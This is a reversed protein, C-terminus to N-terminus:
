FFDIAKINVICQRSVRYFNDPDLYRESLEDLSYDILNKKAQDDVMYVLREQSYFYAISEAAKHVFKNGYKGLFHSKFSSNQSGLLNKIPTLDINMIKDMSQYKSIAKQLGDKSVPKLLYHISNLEFAKIAYQDYATTFIIPAKIEVQNFIDFCIGDALEVDMFILDVGYKKKQFFDVTTKISDTTGVIDIQVALESLILSLREAAVPEDEVIHVNM